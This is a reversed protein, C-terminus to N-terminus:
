KSNDWYPDGYADLRAVAAEMAGIFDALPFEWPTNHRTRERPYIAIKRVGREIYIEVPQDVGAESPTQLEAVRSERHPPTSVVIEFKM